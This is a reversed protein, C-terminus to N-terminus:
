KSPTEEKRAGYFKGNWVTQGHQFTIPYIHPRGAETIYAVAIQHVWGAQAGHLWSPSLTRGCGLGVATAHGGVTPRTYVQPKHTHGYLVTRGPRGYVDAMKGGHYKSPRERLDQHGHTLDLDGRHIPQKYEPVWEIDLAKFDLGSEYSLSDKLSPAKAMIFRSLRSEHNGELYTIKCDEGVTERLEKLARKGADFDETLKELDGGGHQSVSSMELFDGLLVVETPQIDPILQKTTAWVARDHEPFHMDSLILLCKIHGNKRNAREVQRSRARTCERCANRFGGQVDKDPKFNAADIPKSKGCKKCTKQEM